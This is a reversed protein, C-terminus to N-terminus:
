YLVQLIKDSIFYSCNYCVLDHLVSNNRIFQSQLYTLFYGGTKVNVAIELLRMWMSFTLLLIYWRFCRREFSSEQAMTRVWGWPPRPSASTPSATRSCMYLAVRPWHLKKTIKRAPGRVHAIHGPLELIPIFIYNMLLCKTIRSHIRACLKKLFLFIFPYIFYKWEFFREQFIIWIDYLKGNLIYVKITKLATVSNHLWWQM